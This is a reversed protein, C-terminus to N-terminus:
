VALYDIVKRFAKPLYVAPHELASQLTVPELPIRQTDISRPDFCFLVIFGSILSSKKKIKDFGEPIV